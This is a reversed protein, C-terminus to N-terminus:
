KLKWVNERRWPFGNPYRLKSKDNWEKYWAPDTVGTGTGCRYNVTSLGTTGYSVPAQKLGALFARDQIVPVMWLAGYHRALPTKVMFCSNDVLYSNDDYVCPWHGLSNFNDEAIIDGELNVLKRLSYAWDLNNEEILKVLSEVHNPEYWDDDSLFCILDTGVLWAAAAHVGNAGPGVGVEGTESELWIVEQSPACNLPVSKFADEWWKRGNIFIKHHCPHTQKQVSDMCKALQVRGISSTIVTVSLSM